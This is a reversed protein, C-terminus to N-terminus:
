LLANRATHEDKAFVFSRNKWSKLLKVGYHYRHIIQLWFQEIRFSYVATRNEAYVERPSKM